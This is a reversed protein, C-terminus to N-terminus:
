IDFSIGNGGLTIAQSLNFHFRGSWKQLIYVYKIKRYLFLSRQLGNMFIEKLNEMKNCM